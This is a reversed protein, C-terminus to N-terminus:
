KKNWIFLTWHRLDGIKGWKGWVSYRMVSRNDTNGPGATCYEAEFTDQRDAGGVRPSCVSWTNDSCNPNVWTCSSAKLSLPTTAHNSRKKIMRQHNWKSQTKNILKNRQSNIYTDTSGHTLQHANKKCKRSRVYICLYTMPTAERPKGIVQNAREYKM